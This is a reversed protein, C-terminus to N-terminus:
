EFLVMKMTKEFGGASLRYFYVGSSVRQGIDNCGDWLVTHIGATQPGELLTRIKQGLTNYVAISANTNEGLSFRITTSPNFPNPYNGSLASCLSSTEKVLVRASFTWSNGKEDTLTFPIIASAGAPACTVTATIIFPNGCTESQTVHFIQSISKVALWPPATTMDAKIDFREIDSGLRNVVSVPIENKGEALSLVTYDQAKVGATGAMFMLFLTVITRSM